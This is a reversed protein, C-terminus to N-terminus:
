TGNAKLLGQGPAGGTMIRQSRKEAKIWNIVLAINEKQLDPGLDGKTNQNATMQFKQHYDAKNTRRIKLLPRGPDDRNRTGPNRREIKMWGIVLNITLRLLDQGPDSEISQEATMKEQPHDIEGTPCLHHQIPVLHNGEDRLHVIGTINQPTLIMGIRSEPELAGVEVEIDEQFLLIAIMHDVQIGGGGEVIMGAIGTPGGDMSM